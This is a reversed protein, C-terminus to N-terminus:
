GPQQHRVQGLSPTGLDLDTKFESHFQESTAHDRYLAMVRQGDAVHAPLSTIWGELSVEPELYLQGRADSTRVTVKVIRRVGPEDPLEESLIAEM